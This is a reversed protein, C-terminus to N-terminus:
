RMKGEGGGSASKYLQTHSHSLCILGFRSRRLVCGRNPSPTAARARPPPPSPPCGVPASFIPSRGYRDVTAFEVSLIKDYLNCLFDRPLDEGGNIGRNNRIFDDLFHTLSFSRPPSLYTNTHSPPILKRTIDHLELIVIIM